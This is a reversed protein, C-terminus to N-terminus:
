IFDAERAAKLVSVISEFSIHGHGSFAAMFLLAFAPPLLVLATSIFAPGLAELRQGIEYLPLGAAQRHAAQTPLSTPM